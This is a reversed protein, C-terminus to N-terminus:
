SPLWLAVERCAGVNAAGGELVTLHRGRRAGRRGLGCAELAGGRGETPTGVNAPHRGVGRAPRWALGRWAGEGGGGVCVQQGSTGPACTARM